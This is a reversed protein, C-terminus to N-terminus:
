AGSSEKSDKCSGPFIYTRPWLCIIKETTDGNKLILIM